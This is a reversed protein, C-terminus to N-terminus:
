EPPAPADDTPPSGNRRAEAERKSRAEEQGKRRAEQRRRQKRSGGNGNPPRLADSESKGVAASAASAKQLPQSPPTPRTPVIEIGRAPAGSSGFLERADRLRYATVQLWAYAALFALVSFLLWLGLPGTAAVLTYLSANEAAVATPWEAASYLVVILGVASLLSFVTFAPDVLRNANEFTEPLEDVQKLLSSGKDTTQSAMPVLAAAQGAVVSNLQTALKRRVQPVLGIALNIGVGVGALSNLDSFTTM